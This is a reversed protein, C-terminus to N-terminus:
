CAENDSQHTIQEAHVEAYEAPCPCTSDAKGSILEPLTPCWGCELSSDEAECVSWFCM